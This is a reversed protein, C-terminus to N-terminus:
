ESRGEAKDIVARADALMTPWADESPSGHRYLDDEYVDELMTLLSSCTRLLDPAAAILRANPDPDPRQWPRLECVVHNADCEKRYQPAIVALLHGFDPHNRVQWPGPTHGM